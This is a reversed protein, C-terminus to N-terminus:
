ISNVSANQLELKDALIDGKRADVVIIALIVDIIDKCSISKNISNNNTNISNINISNRTNRNHCKSAVVGKDHFNSFMAATQSPVRKRM